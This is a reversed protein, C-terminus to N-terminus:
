WRLEGLDTTPVYSNLDAGFKVCKDKAGISFVDDVHVVVLMTVNTSEVVRFMCPDTECQGFGLGVMGRVLHHHWTRSSQKLGYLSRVLKVVRGSLLVVVRRYVRMSMRKLSVRFSLKRLMM